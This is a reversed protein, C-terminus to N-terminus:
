CRVCLDSWQHQESGPGKWKVRLLKFVWGVWFSDSLMLADTSATMSICQCILIGVPQVFHACTTGGRQLLASLQWFQPDLSSRVLLFSPWVGRKIILQNMLIWLCLPSLSPALTCVPTPIGYYSPDTFPFLLIVFLFVGMLYSSFITIRNPHELATSIAPFGMYNCFSHCLVPGM